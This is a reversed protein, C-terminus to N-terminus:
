VSSSGHGFTCVASLMELTFHFERDMSVPETNSWLNWEAALTSRMGTRRALFDPEVDGVATSSLLALSRRLSQHLFDHACAARDYDFFSVSSGLADVAVVVSVDSVVLRDQQSM